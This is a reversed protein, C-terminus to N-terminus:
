AEIEALKSAVEARLRAIKEARDCVEQLEAAAEEM